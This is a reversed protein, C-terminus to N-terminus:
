CRPAESASGVPCETDAHTEADSAKPPRRRQRRDLPLSAKGTANWLPLAKEHPGDDSHMERSISTHIQCVVFTETVEILMGAEFGRVKTHAGHDGGPRQRAGRDQPCPKLTPPRLRGDPPVHARTARPNQGCNETNARHHCPRPVHGTICQDVIKSDLDYHEMGKQWPEGTYRWSPQPQRNHRDQGTEQQELSEHGFSKDYSRAAMCSVPWSEHLMTCEGRKSPGHKTCMPAKVATAAGVTIPYHIARDQKRPYSRDYPANM